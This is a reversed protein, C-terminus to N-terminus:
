DDKWLHRGVCDQCASIGLVTMFGIGAVLGVFIGLLFGDM